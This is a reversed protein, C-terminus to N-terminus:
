EPSGCAFAVFRGHHSLSLPLIRGDGLELSPIRDEATIRASGAASGCVRALALKRVAASPDAGGAEAVAAVVRPVGLTAEHAIAHVAGDEESWTVIFDRSGIRVSGERADRVTVVFRAPAFVLERDTRRAAKYAAEKAAWLRWREVEPHAASHLRALESAALVRADFGPHVSDPHSDPDRLDVVDNGIM